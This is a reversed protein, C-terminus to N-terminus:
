HGHVRKACLNFQVTAYMSKHYNPFEQINTQAFHILTIYAQYYQLNDSINM